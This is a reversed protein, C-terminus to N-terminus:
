GASFYPNWFEESSLSASVLSPTGFSRPVPVETGATTVKKGSEAWVSTQTGFATNRPVPVETGATVVKKGSEAWGVSFFKTKELNRKLTLLRPEM